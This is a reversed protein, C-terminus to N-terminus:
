SAQFILLDSCLPMTLNRSRERELQGQIIRAIRHSLDYSHRTVMREPHKRQNAQAAAAIARVDFGHKAANAEKMRRVQEIISDTQEEVITSM